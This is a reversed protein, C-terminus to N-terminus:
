FNGRANRTSGIHWLSSIYILTNNLSMLSCFYPENEAFYNSFVSWAIANYDRQM